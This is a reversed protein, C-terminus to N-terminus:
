NHSDIIESLLDKILKLWDLADEEKEFFLNTNRVFQAKEQLTYNNDNLLEELNKQILFLYEKSNEKFAEQVIDKENKGEWYDGFFSVLFNKLESYKVEIKM